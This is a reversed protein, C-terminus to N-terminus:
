EIYGIFPLNRYQGNYDMGYGVLFINECQLAAFDADFEVTRCGLKKIAVASAVKTAGQEVLKRCVSQLTFGTDLVDDLVLIQKGRCDPLADQWKLKGSSTTGEYSSLRLTHLEYNTPLCRLLDATFWIAGNLLCLVLTPEETGLAQIIAQATQRVADQIQEGSYLQRINM